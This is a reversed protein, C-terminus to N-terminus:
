GNGLANTKRIIKLMFADIPNAETIFAAHRIQVVANASESSLLGHRCLLYKAQSVMDEYTALVNALLTPRLISGAM